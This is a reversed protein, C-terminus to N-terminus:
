EHNKKAKYTYVALDFLDSLIGGVVLSGGIIYMADKYGRNRGSTVLEDSMSRFENRVAIEDRTLNTYVNKFM